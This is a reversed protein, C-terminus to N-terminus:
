VGVVWQDYTPIELATSARLGLSLVICDILLWSHLLLFLMSLFRSMLIKPTTIGLYCASCPWLTRWWDSIYYHPVYVGFIKSTMAKYAVKKNTKKQQWHRKQQQQMRIAKSINNQRKAQACWSSSVSSSLPHHTNLLSNLPTTRSPPSSYSKEIIYAPFWMLVFFGEETTTM